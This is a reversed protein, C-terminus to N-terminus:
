DFRALSAPSPLQEYGEVVFVQMKRLTAKKESILQLENAFLLNKIGM